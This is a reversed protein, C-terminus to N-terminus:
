VQQGGAYHSRARVLEHNSVAAFWPLDALRCVDIGQSTPDSSPIETDEHVFIAFIHQLGPHLRRWRKDM